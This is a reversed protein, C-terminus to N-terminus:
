ALARRVKDRFHRNGAIAALFAQHVFTKRFSAYDSSSLDRLFLAIMVPPRGAPRLYSAETITGPLSGGKTGFRSIKTRNEPFAVLPWELTRRITANARDPLGRGDYLLSMLLAWDRPTGAPSADVYGSIDHPLFLHAITTPNTSAAIEEARQSRRAPTLARWMRLPVTAWAAFEGLIPLVPDQEVMGERSAFAAAAGPGGVRALLYDAAANDSWRIAAWAVDDLSVTSMADIRGRARWDAIAQPHAGGDTNPWYWREVDGVDVRQAPNLRGAAVALGYAGLILVKRTSALPFKEDPNLLIARNQEGLAYAVFGAHSRNARLWELFADPTAPAARPASRGCSALM